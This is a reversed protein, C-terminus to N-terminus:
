ILTPSAQAPPYYFFIDADEALAQHWQQIYSNGPEVPSLSLDSNGLFFCGSSYYALIHLVNVPQHCNIYGELAISIQSIGDQDPDIIIVQAWDKVSKILTRYSKVRADVFVVTLNQPNVELELLDPTTALIFM